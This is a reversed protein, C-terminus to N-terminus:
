VKKKKKFELLCKGEWFTKAKLHTTEMDLQFQLHLLKYKM